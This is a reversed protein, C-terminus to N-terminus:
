MWRQLAVRLLENAESATLQLGLSIADLVRQFIVGDAHAKIQVVGHEEDADGYRYVVWRGRVSDKTCVYWDYTTDYGLADGQTTMAFLQCSECDHKYRPM